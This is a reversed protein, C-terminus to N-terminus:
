GNFDGDKSTPPSITTDDSNPAPPTSVPAKPAEPESTKPIVPTSVPNSACKEINEKISKLQEQLHTLEIISDVKHTIGNMVFEKIVKYKAM